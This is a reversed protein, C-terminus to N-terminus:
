KASLAQRAASQVLQAALAATRDLAQMAEAIVAERGAQNQAARVLLPASLCLRLIASDSAFRIPQGLHVPPSAAALNQHLLAAQAFSLARGHPTLQFPFITPLSDFDHGSLLASRDPAISDLPAFAPDAILRAQVAGAFAATAARRRAVPLAYCARMEFLAAQWRLALGWNPADDLARRAAWGIPWEARASYDRMAPHLSKHRLRGSWAPPCLLAGSFVPGAFFKSGTIAVLFNQALCARITDPALRCQCADILIDLHHPFRQKLRLVSALGPAILGTKSVDSVVLLCPQGRAVAEAIAATLEAEIDTERRLGGDTDRVAFEHTEARDGFSLEEGKAVVRGHRASALFHRGSVALGVGSGTEDPGPTLVKLPTEYAGGLLQSVLLHLDTGSAALVVGTADPLGFMASIEARLAAMAKEYVLGADQTTLAAGLQDHLSQAAQFAGATPTSATSSGFALAQPVPHPAHGYRNLGSVPDPTLREDGGSLWTEMVTDPLTNM